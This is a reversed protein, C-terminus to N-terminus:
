TRAATASCLPRRGGCSRRLCASLVVGGRFEVLRVHREFQGQKFVLEPPQGSRLSQDRFYILKEDGTVMRRWFRVDQPNLLLQKCVDTDNPRAM